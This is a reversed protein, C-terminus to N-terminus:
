LGCRLTDSVVANLQRMKQRLCIQQSLLWGILGPHEYSSPERETTAIGPGALLRAQQKAASCKSLQRHAGRLIQGEIQLYAICFAGYPAALRVGLVLWTWWLKMFFYCRRPSKVQVAFYLTASINKLCSEICYGAARHACRVNIWANKEACADCKTINDLLTIHKVNWYVGKNEEWVVEKKKWIGKLWPSRTNYPM